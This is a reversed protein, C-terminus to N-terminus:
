NQKSVSKNKMNEPIVEWAVYLLLTQVPCKLGYSFACM